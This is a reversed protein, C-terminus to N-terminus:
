RHHEDHDDDRFVLGVVGYIISIVGLVFPVFGPATPVGELINAWADGFSGAAHAALALLGVGALVAAASLLWRSVIEPNSPHKTKM